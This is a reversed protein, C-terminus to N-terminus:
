AEALMMGVDAATSLVIMGTGARGFAAPGGIM